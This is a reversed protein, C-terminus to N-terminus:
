PEPIQYTSIITGEANRLTVTQGPQWVAETLGWYLNSADDRGSETHLLVAAGEGFLTVQGFTYTRGDEDSLQWGQLAIPRSGNNSIAVAEETLQGASVVESVEVRAEGDDMPLTPIPTPIMDPTPTLTPVPTPTPIGGIPIILQQGVALINPNSIGNVEMIDSMPVDFRQSIIGLTDGAQVVYILPMDEEVAEEVLEAVATSMEVTALEEVVSLTLTPIPTNAAAMTEQRGDWWYLIGLVVVASVVINLFLFPLMRRISM